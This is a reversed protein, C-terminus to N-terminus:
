PEPVPHAQSTAPSPREWGPPAWLHKLRHALPGPRLVDRVMALPEHFVTIIPNATRLPHTIGYAPKENEEEFTGFLRDWIILTGAFNKDLYRENCAHHVRHHSPTNFVYELWGLKGVLETHVFFQYVLNVNVSLLVFSPSFGFYVLPIYFPWMGAIPSLMSQRFATSFNMAEQSHHVVHTAWFWRVRHSARHAAYYLADQLLWLVCFSGWTRPITFLRYEYVRAYVAFVGVLALLEVAQFSAALAINNLTEHKTYNSRRLRALKWAEYGICAFYAPTAMLLVLKAPDLSLITDFM